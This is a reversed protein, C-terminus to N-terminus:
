DDFAEVVAARKKPAKPKPPPPPAPVREDDEDEVAPAQAGFVLDFKEPFMKVLDHESEVVEGKRYVRGSEDVHKGARIKFQM